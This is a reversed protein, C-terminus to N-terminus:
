SEEQTVSVSLHGAATTKKSSIMALESIMFEERWWDKVLAIVNATTM